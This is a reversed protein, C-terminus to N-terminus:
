AECSCLDCRFVIADEQVLRSLARGSRAYFVSVDQGELTLAFFSLCDGVHDELLLRQSRVLDDAAVIDGTAFARGTRRALEAM